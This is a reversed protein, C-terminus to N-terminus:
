ILVSGNPSNIIVLFYYKNLYTNTKSIIFLTNINLDELQVGGFLGLWIVTDVEWPGLQERGQGGPVYPTFQEDRHSQLLPAWHEGTSPNQRQSGPVNKMRKKRKKKNINDDSDDNDNNNNNQHWWPPNTRVAGDVTGTPCPTLATVEATGAPISSWTVRHITVTGTSWPPSSVLTLQQTLHPSVSYVRRHWVM